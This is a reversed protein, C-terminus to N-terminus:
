KKSLLCIQRHMVLPKAANENWFAAQRFIYTSKQWFLVLIVFNKSFTDIIWNEIRNQQM